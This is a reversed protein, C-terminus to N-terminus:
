DRRRRLRDDTELACNACARIFASAHASNGIYQYAGRMERVREELREIESASHRLGAAALDVGDQAERRIACGFCITAPSVSYERAVMGVASVDAWDVWDSGGYDTMPLM